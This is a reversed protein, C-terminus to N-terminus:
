LVPERQNQASLFSAGLTFGSVSEKGKRRKTKESSNASFFFVSSPYPTEQESGKSEGFREVEEKEMRRRKEQV